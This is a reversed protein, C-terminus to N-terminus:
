ARGGFSVYDDLDLLEAYSRVDTRTPCLKGITEAFWGLIEPDGEPGRTDQFASWQAIEWAARQHKAHAQIWALLEGDGKGTAVEQQLAGPDIGLFDLIEQDLPCNYRYEGNKGALTARCKDLMRPLLAYGGLRVRPSRPPHQTLDPATFNM